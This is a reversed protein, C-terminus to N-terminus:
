SKIENSSEKPEIEKTMVVYAQEWGPIVKPLRRLWGERGWMEVRKCGNNRAFEEVAYYGDAWTAWDIGSCAIIHLTKHTSYELFQTLGCGKLQNNDDLFVWVQAQYNLVKRLYDILTSEHQGHDISRQLMPSLESWHQVAEEPLLLITKM